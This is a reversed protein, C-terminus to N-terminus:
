ALPVPMDENHHLMKNVAETQTITDIHMPKSTQTNVDRVIIQKMLLEPHSLPRVASNDAVVKHKKLAHVADIAKQLQEEL